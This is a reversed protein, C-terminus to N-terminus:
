TKKNQLILTKFYTSHLSPYYKLYLYKRYTESICAVYRTDQLLYKKESIDQLQIKICKKVM